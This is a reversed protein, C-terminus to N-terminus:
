IELRGGAPGCACPARRGQCPQGKGKGTVAEAQLEPHPGPAGTNDGGESVGAHMRSSVMHRSHALGWTWHQLQLEPLRLTTIEAEFQLTITHNRQAGARPRGM